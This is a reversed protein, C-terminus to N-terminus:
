AGKGGSEGGLGLIDIVALSARLDGLLAVLRESEDAGGSAIANTFLEDGTNLAVLLTAGDFALSVKKSGVKDVLELARRRFDADLIDRADEANATWVQFEAEFAADDEIAIREGPLASLDAGTLFAKRNPILLVPSSVPTPLGLQFLPGKLIRATTGTANGSRAFRGLTATVIRFAVGDHSGEMARGPSARNFPPVVRLDDFREILSDEGREQYRFGHFACLRDILFATLEDEADSTLWMGAVLLGLGAVIPVAGIWGYFVAIAIGAALM